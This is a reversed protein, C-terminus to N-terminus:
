APLLGVHHSSARRRRTGFPGGKAFDLSTGGIVPLHHSRWPRRRTRKARMPIRCIGPLRQASSQEGLLRGALAYMGHYLGAPLGAANKTKHLPNTRCEAPGAPSHQFTVSLGQRSSIITVDILDFGTKARTSSTRYYKVLHSKVGVDLEVRRQLEAVVAQCYLLLCLAKLQEGDLFLVVFM